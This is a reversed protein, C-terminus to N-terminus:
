TPAEGVYKLSASVEIAEDTTWVTKPSSITLIFDGVRTEAMTPPNASPSARGIQLSGGLGVVLSTLAVAAIMTAGILGARTWWPGRSPMSARAAGTPASRELAQLEARLRDDSTM